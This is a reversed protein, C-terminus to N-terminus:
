QGLLTKQGTNVPNTNGPRLTALRTEVTAAANIDAANQM